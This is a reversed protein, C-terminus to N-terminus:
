TSAAQSGVGGHRPHGRKVGWWWFRDNALIGRTSSYHIHTGLLPHALLFFLCVCAGPGPQTLTTAELSCSSHFLRRETCCNAGTVCSAPRQPKIKAYFSFSSFCNRQEAAALPFSFPLSTGRLTDGALRGRSPTPPLSPSYTWPTAGREKERKWGKRVIRRECRKYGRRSCLFSISASTFFLERRAYFDLRREGDTPPDTTSRWAAVRARRDEASDRSYVLTPKERVCVRM